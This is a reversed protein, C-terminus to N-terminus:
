AVARSADKRRVSLVKRVRAVPEGQSDVVTVEFVPSIKGKLDAEARVEEIRMRPLEFRAKVKGRGPKLFEISASKDWVVYGDGLQMMLMLMFFPDCMSYLSGGFQTGVFNRNWHALKMEVELVSLDKAVRTVSVGAGLYPPYFRMLKLFRDNGIRRAIRQLVSM